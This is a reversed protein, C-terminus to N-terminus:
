SQYAGRDGTTPPFDSFRSARRERLLGWLDLAVKVPVLAVAFMRPARTLLLLAGGLLVAGNFVAIRAMLPKTVSEATAERWEGRRLYDIGFAVAHSAFLFAVALVATWDAMELLGRVMGEPSGAKLYRDWAALAGVLLGHGAALPGLIVLSYLSHLIRLPLPGAKGAFLVKVAAFFGVIVTEAWYIVAIFVADWGWWLVGALDWLNALLLAAASLLFDSRKM